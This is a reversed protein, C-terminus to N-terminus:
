KKEKGEERLPLSLLLHKVSSFLCKLKESGRCQTLWWWLKALPIMVALADVSTCNFVDKTLLVPSPQHASTSM